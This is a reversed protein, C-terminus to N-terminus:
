KLVDRIEENRDFVSKAFPCLPMIKKGEKRALEVAKIVMKKGAGEGRLSDDVETHEIIFLSEGAKSYVMEAKKEGDKEIFFYGKKEDTKHKIEM